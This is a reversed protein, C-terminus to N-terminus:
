PLRANIERMLNIVWTNYRGHIRASGDASGRYLLNGSDVYTIEYSNSTYVIRVVASHRRVNLTGRIVGPQEKLPIWKRALMGEIIAQEVRDTSAPPFMVPPPNYLASTRCGALATLLLILFVPRPLWVKKVESSWPSRTTMNPMRPPRFEIVERSGILLQQEVRSREPNGPGSRGNSPCKPIVTSQRFRSAQHSKRVEHDGVVRATHGEVPLVEAQEVIRAVAGAPVGLSGLIELGPDLRVLLTSTRLSRQDLRPILRAAAQISRPDGPDDIRDDQHSTRFNAPLSGLRRMRREAVAEREAVEVVVM